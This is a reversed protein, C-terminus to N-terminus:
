DWKNSAFLGGRFSFGGEIKIHLKGIYENTCNAIFYDFEPGHANEIQFYEHSKFSYNYKGILIQMFIAGLRCSHLLLQILREREGEEGGWYEPNDILPFVGHAIHNRLNRVLHLGYSPSQLSTDNLGSLETKYRENYRDFISIYNTVLHDFHKPFVQKPISDVLAAAKRSARRLRKGIPIGQVDALREYQGEVFRYTEELANALFIFKTLATSYATFHSSDSAVQDAATDCYVVSDDAFKWTNVEVKELHSALRLWDGIVTTHVNRKSESDIHEVSNALLNCFEALEYLHDSLPRLEECYKCKPSPKLTNKGNLMSPYFM